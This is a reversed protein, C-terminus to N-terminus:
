LNRNVRISPPRPLPAGSKLVLAHRSKCAAALESSWARCSEREMTCITKSIKLSQIQPILLWHIMKLKNQKMDLYSLPSILMTNETDGIEKKLKRKNRIEDTTSVAANKSLVVVCLAVPSSRWRLKKVIEKLVPAVKKMISRDEKKKKNTHTISKSKVNTADLLGARSTKGRIWWWVLRWMM